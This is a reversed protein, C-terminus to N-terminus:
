TSGAVKNSFYVEYVHKEPNPFAPADNTSNSKIIYLSM